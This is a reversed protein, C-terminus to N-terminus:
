EERSESVIGAMEAGAAVREGLRRKRGVQSPLLTMVLKRLVKVLKFPDRQAATRPRM